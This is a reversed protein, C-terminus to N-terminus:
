GDLVLSRPAGASSHDALERMLARRIKPQQSLAVAVITLLLWMATSSVIVFIAPLVASGLRDAWERAAFVRWLLM